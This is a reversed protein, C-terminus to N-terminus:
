GQFAGSWIPLPECIQFARDAVFNQLAHYRANFLDAKEEGLTKSSGDPLFYPNFGFSKGRPSVLKGRVEGKYIFVKQDRHIGLYCVFIATRGIHLDLEGLAWRINVGLDADEVDLSVDDVIVNEFQSAKFRIITVPDSQPEPLNKQTAVVAVDASIEAFFKEFEALKGLNSTNVFVKNDLIKM